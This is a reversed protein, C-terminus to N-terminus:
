YHLSRNVVNILPQRTHLRELNAELLGLVREWHVKTRWSVHPTIFINPARWLPHDKPLPEPDTVDLAAARIKGTELAEILADNQVLPGRAINSVFTRRRSLIEFQERGFLGRTEETLPLGLVLIDLDQALFANVSERSAGHFWKTPILGDPDGTGPICYSDDKRSAPTSRESRTYAYVEMGMAQAIKGCQRGIAGYGLIGMRLNVSDEVEVALPSEWFGEKMNNAYRLFHHQSSLWTGIVWEAIQPSQCGNTTCFAVDPNKYVEHDVWKDVGASSVQVFRVKSMRSPSAPLYSYFITVGDWVADPIEDPQTYGGGPKRSDVWRVQLGPFRESVRRTWAPNEAASLLLLLVDEALPSAQDPIDGM